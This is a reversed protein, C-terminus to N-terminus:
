DDERLQDGVKQSTSKWGMRGELFGADLIVLEASSNLALNRPQYDSISVPYRMVFKALERLRGDDDKVVEPFLEVLGYAIEKFEDDPTHGEQEYDFEFDLVAHYFESQFNEYNKYSQSELIMFGIISAHFFRQLDINGGFGIDRADGVKDELAELGYYVEVWNETVNVKETVIWVPFEKSPGYDEVKVALDSFQSEHSIELEKRNDKLANEAQQKQAVKAIRDGKSKDNILFAKRFTGFGIRHFSQEAMKMVDEMYHYLDKEQSLDDYQKLRGMASKKFDKYTSGYWEEEYEHLFQRWENMLRKM